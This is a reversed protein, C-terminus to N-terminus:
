WNELRGIRAEPEVLCSRSRWKFQWNDGSRMEMVLGELKRRDSALTQPKRGEGNEKEQLLPSKLLQRTGEDGEGVGLVLFPV